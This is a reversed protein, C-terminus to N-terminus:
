LEVTWTIITNSASTVERPNTLAGGLGQDYAFIRFRAGQRRIQGDKKYVTFAVDNGASDLDVPAVGPLDAADGLQPAYSLEPGLFYSEPHDGIRAIGIAPHIKYITAM